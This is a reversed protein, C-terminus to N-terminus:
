MRPRHLNLHFSSRSGQAYGVNKAAGLLTRNRHGIFYRSPGDAALIVAPGRWRKELGHQKQRQVGQTGLSPVERMSLSRLSAARLKASRGAGLHVEQPWGFKHRCGVRVTVAWPPPPWTRIKKVRLLLAGDFQEDSCPSSQLAWRVEDMNREQSACVIAWHWNGKSDALSTFVRVCHQELNGSEALWRAKGGIRTAMRAHSGTVRIDMAFQECGDTATTAGGLTLMRLFKTGFERHARRVARRVEPSTSTSIRERESTHFNWM